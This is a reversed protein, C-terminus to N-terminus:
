LTFNKKKLSDHMDYSFIVITIKNLFKKKNKSSKM